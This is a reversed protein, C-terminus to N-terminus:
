GEPQRRNAIQLEPLFPAPTSKQFALKTMAAGFKQFFESECVWGSRRLIAESGNKMDHMRFRRRRLASRLAPLSLSLSSSVQLSPARSHQSLRPSPSPTAHHLAAVGPLLQRLAQLLPLPRLLRPLPTQRRLLHQRPHPRLLDLFDLRQQPTLLRRLIEALNIQFLEIMRHQHKELAHDRHHMQPRKLHLFEGAHRVLMLELQMRMGQALASAHFGLFFDPSVASSENWSKWVALPPIVASGTFELPSSPPVSLQKGNTFSPPYFILFCPTEM